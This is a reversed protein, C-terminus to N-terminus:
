VFTGPCCPELEDRHKTHATQFCDSIAQKFGDFKSYYKSYLREKRVFRGLREILNLHPSYSPLHPLEIGLAAAHQLMVACKQYRANDLVITISRGAYHAGCPFFLNACASQAFTREFALVASLQHNYNVLNEDSLLKFQLLCCNLPYFRDRWILQKRCLNDFLVAV